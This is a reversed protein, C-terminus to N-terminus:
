STEPTMLLFKMTRDTLDTCSNQQDGTECEENWAGKERGQLRHGILPAMFYGLIFVTIGLWDESTILQKMIRQSDAPTCRNDQHDSEDQLHAGRPKGKKRAVDQADAMM